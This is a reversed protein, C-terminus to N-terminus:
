NFMKDVVFILFLYDFSLVIVSIFLMLGFMLVLILNEKKM